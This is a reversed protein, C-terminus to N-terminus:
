GHVERILPTRQFVEVGKVDGVTVLIAEEVEFLALHRHVTLPTFAPTNIRLIALCDGSRGHYSSVRLAVQVIWAVLLLALM